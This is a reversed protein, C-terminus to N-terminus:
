QMEKADKNNNNAKKRGMVIDYAATSVEKLSLYPKNELDIGRKPLLSLFDRILGQYANINRM